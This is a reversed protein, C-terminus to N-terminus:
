TLTIVDKTHATWSVAPSPRSGEGGASQLWMVRDPPTVHGQWDSGWRGPLASCVPGVEGNPDPPGVVGNPDPPHRVHCEEYVDSMFDWQVPAATVHISLYLLVSLKVSLCFVWSLM